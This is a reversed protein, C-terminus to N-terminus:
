PRVVASLTCRCNIVNGPSAGMMTDGPHMLPENSVTFPQRKPVVQGDASVHDFVPGGRSGAPRVATDRATIWEKGEVEDDADYSALTGANAANVIETRAIRLARTPSLDQAVQLVRSQLAVIGEGAQLGELLSLRFLQVIEQSILPAYLEVRRLLFRDLLPDFLSPVTLVPPVDPLEDDILGDATKAVQQAIDRLGTKIGWGYATRLHRTMAAGIARSLQDRNPLAQEVLMETPAHDVPMSEAAEGAAEQMLRALDRQLRATAMREFAAFRERATTRRSVGKTIDVNTTGDPSSPLVLPLSEGAFVVKSPVMSIPVLWDDGGVVDGQVDRLFPAIFVRRSENPTLIRGQVAKTASEVQTGIIDAFIDTRSEDLVSVFSPDFDRLLGEDLQGEMLRFMPVLKDQWLQRRQERRNGFNESEIGVYIPPVGFANIIGARSLRRQNLYELDKPQVAVPKFEAGRGLVAIRGANVPGGYVERWQDRLEKAQTHTVDQQTSLIGIPLASNDLMALTSRKAQQDARIDDAAPRVPAMGWVDSLPSPLRLHVISSHNFVYEVGGADSPRWGYRLGGLPGEREIRVETPKLSWLEVVRGRSDRVKWWFANGALALNLMSVYLFEAWAQLGNIEGLLDWVPGDLVEAGLRRGARRFIRLPVQITEEAWITACRYVLASVRYVRLQDNLDELPPIGFPGPPGLIQGQIVEPRVREAPVAQKRVGLPKLPTLLSM